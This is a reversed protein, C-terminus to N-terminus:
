NLAAGHAHPSAMTYTPKWVFRRPAPLDVNLAAQASVFSNYVSQDASLGEHTGQTVFILQYSSGAALGIPAVLPTAQVIAGLLSWVMSLGLTWGKGRSDVPALGAAGRPLSM